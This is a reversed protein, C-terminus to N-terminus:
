KPVTPKYANNENKLSNQKENKGCNKPKPKENGSCKLKKKKRKEQKKQKARKRWDFNRKKDDLGRKTTKSKKAKQGKHQCKTRAVLPQHHPLRRGIPFM